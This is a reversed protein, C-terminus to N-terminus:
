EWLYSQESAITKGDAILSIRWCLVRGQDFYNDGIVSFEEKGSTASPDLKRKITKVLSGTKGQQYEFLVERNAGSELQWLVTYYQGLRQRREEMSVAGHLRRAKEHAIMPDEGKVSEQDRVTQIKVILPDTTKACGILLIGLVATLLPKM